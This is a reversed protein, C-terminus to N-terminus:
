PPRAAPPLPRLPLAQDAADPGDSRIDEILAWRDDIVVASQAVFGAPPTTGSWSRRATGTQSRQRAPKTAAAPSSTSANGTVLHLGDVPQRLVKAWAPIARGSDSPPGPTSPKGSPTRHPV